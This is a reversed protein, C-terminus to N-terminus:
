PTRHCLAPVHSESRWPWGCWRGAKSVERVFSAACRLLTRSSPGCRIMATMPSRARRGNELPIDQKPAKRNNSVYAANTSSPESNVKEAPRVKRHYAKTGVDPQRQPLSPRIPTVAMVIALKGAMRAHRGAQFLPWTTPWFRGEHRLVDPCDANAKFDGLVM